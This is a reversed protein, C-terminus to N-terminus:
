VWRTTIQASTWSDEVPNPAFDDTQGTIPPMTIRGESHNTFCTHNKLLKQSGNGANAVVLLGLCAFRRAAVGRPPKRGSTRLSKAAGWPLRPSLSLPPPSSALAGLEKRGLHGHKAACGRHGRGRARLGASSMPQGLPPAAPERLNTFAGNWSVFNHLRDLSVGCGAERGRSRGRGAETRRELKVAMM